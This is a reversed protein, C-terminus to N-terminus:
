LAKNKGGYLECVCLSVQVYHPYFRRNVIAYILPICLSGDIFLTLIYLSVITLDSTLYRSDAKGNEMGACCGCVVPLNDNILETVSM